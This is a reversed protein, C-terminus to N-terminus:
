QPGGSGVEPLVMCEDSRASASVPVSAVIFGRGERM